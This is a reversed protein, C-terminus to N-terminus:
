AIRIAELKCAAGSAFTRQYTGSTFGLRINLYITTSTTVVYYTNLARIPLGAGVNPNIDRTMANGYIATGAGIAIEEQLLTGVTLVEYCALGYIMYVGPTLAVYALNYVIGTAFTQAATLQTGSNRGGLQTGATKATWTTPLRINNDFNTIQTFTNTGTFSQTANVYAV